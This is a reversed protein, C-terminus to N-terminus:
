ETKKASCTTVLVLVTPRGLEGLLPPPGASSSRRPGWRPVAHFAFCSRPQPDSGSSRRRGRHTPRCSAVTKADTHRFVNYQILNQALNRSAHVQHILAGPDEELV